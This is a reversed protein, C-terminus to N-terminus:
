WDLQCIVGLTTVNCSRTDPKHQLHLHALPVRLPYFAAGGDCPRANCTIARCWATAHQTRRQMAAFLTRLVFEANLLELLSAMFREQAHKHSAAESAQTCSHRGPVCPELYVGQIVVDPAHIAEIGSQKSRTVAAATLPRYVRGHNCM